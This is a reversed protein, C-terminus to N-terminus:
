PAKLMLALPRAFCRVGCPVDEVSMGHKRMNTVSQRAKLMSRGHTDIARREHVGKLKVAPRVSNLANSSHIRSRLAPPADMLRAPMAVPPLWPTSNPTVGITIGSEFEFISLM